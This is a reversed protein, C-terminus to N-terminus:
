FLTNYCSSRTTIWVLSSQCMLIGLTDKLFTYASYKSINRSSTKSFTTRTDISDSLLLVYKISIYKIQDFTMTASHPSTFSRGTKKKIINSKSIQIGSISCYIYSYILSFFTTEQSFSYGDLRQMRFEWVHIIKM